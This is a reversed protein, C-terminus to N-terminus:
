EVPGLRAMDQLVRQGLVLINSAANFDCDWIVGCECTYLLEPGVDCIAGCLHCIKTTNPAPIMIVPVGARAGTKKITEKLYGPAVEVRQSRSSSDLSALDAPLDVKEEPNPKKAWSAVKLDELIIYDYEQVLRSAVNAYIANRHGICRSQTGVEYQWLHRDQHVWRELYSPYKSVHTGVLLSPQHSLLPLLKDKHQYWLRALKQPSRWVSLHHVDERLESDLKDRDRLDELLAAKVENLLQDRIGRIARAHRIGDRITSPLLFEGRNGDTDIWYAARLDKAQKSRWSFDFAIGRGTLVEAVPRHVPDPVTLTLQLTWKGHNAHKRRTISANTIQAEEPIRRHLILPFEAFVPKKKEDSAVRFWLKTRSLRKREGKPVDPDWARPDVPDIRLLKHEGDFLAEISQPLSEANAATKQVQVSLTGEGTWRKFSPKGVSTKNAKEAATFVANYTGWYLGSTRRCETLKERYEKYVAAVAATHEPDSRQVKFLARLEVTLRKQQCCAAEGETKLLDIQEQHETKGEAPKAGRLANIMVRIEDLASHSEAIEASKARIEASDLDRVHDARERYLEILSNYFRHAKYLIDIVDKEGVPPLLGYQHVIIAM